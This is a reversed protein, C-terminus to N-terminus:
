RAKRDAHTATKGHRRSGYTRRAEAECAARRRKPKKRCARLAKALKQARTLPRSRSGHTPNGAGSFTASGVAGFVTPQESPAPRCSETSGCPSAGVGLPPLCPVAASCEHADYVDPSTDFDQPLLAGSTIFFVDGGSESADLFAAEESTAGSSILGLCGGKRADYSATASSCGGVGAPEYEYVDETGNVDQPLLPDSSNFFLRGSDSLYRSQYVALGFAHATWGPVNAATWTGGPWVKAGEILRQESAPNLEVGEPRAGSPNCSACLLRKANYDYLYVEEDPVGSVVDQNDYQTLGQRSMFAVFRGSPSVRATMEALGAGVGGAWDPFDAPSLGGIFTTEWRGESEHAVYLNDAGPSAGEALVGGAVFYVSTGDESAGIISGRVEASGHPKTTPTLDTLECGLLGQGSTIRCMYLDTGSSANATLAQSDTFFVRSGDSSATQYIPNGEGAGSGGNLLDLRVSKELHTDRLYLHREPEAETWVIRSGDDSVAGRTFASSINGLWAGRALQGGESEPGISVLKLVGEGNPGGEAWEYLGGEDGPQSTLTVHSEVIVHSLDRSAGVVRVEGRAEAPTGNIRTGATDNASTVLARFCLERREACVWNARLYVTRETAVPSIEQGVLPTFSGLPEMIAQSLDTSFLPYEAGLGVTNPAAGDRSTAIDRSSWGSPTRKSLLQVLLTANGESRTETPTGAAYTVAGGDAAAQVVGEEAIGHILAGNKEPPSVIEWGRGDAVGTARASGRTFFTQDPGAFSEFTGPATEAVAVVRYHYASGPRLKTLARSVRVAAEGSGILEGHAAGTLLPTEAEYNSSLGYDFYYFTPMGHPDISAELEASEGTVRAVWAAETKPGPTTFSVINGEGRTSGNENSAVLSYYYTTDPELESLQVSVPVEGTGSVTASCMTVKGLSPSTGWEFACRAPGANLLDIKGVATAVRPHVLEPAPSEAVADPLVVDAGFVDVRGDKEGALYEGAYLRHSAPDVALGEIQQFPGEATHRVRGVYRGAENFEDVAGEKPNGVYIEGTGSDVAIGTLREFAGYPTGTLQAVLQVEDLGLPKLVDVVKGAPGGVAVVLDGNTQDVALEGVESFLEGPESASPGVIQTVYTEKGEAEPKFVDITRRENDSVYVDGAAWDGPHSSGDFAVARVAGGFSGGPVDSGLWTRLFEGNTVNFVAVVGATQEARTQAAVYVQSGFAGRGVAIGNEMSEVGPVQPLRSIFGGAESFEDVQSGSVGATREAIWLNGSDVTMSRVLGLPGTPLATIPALPNHTVEAQASVSWLCATGAIACGLIAGSLM